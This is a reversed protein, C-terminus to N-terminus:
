SPFSNTFQFHMGDPRGTWDAGCVWGHKRWVALFKESWTGRAGKARGLPNLNANFDLALGWSHISYENIGRKLRLNVCGDYTKFEKSLGTAILERMVACFAPWAFKNMQIRTVHPVGPYPPFSSAIDPPLTFIELWKKQFAPKSPDGYAALCHQTDTAM